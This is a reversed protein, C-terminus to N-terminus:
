SVRTMLINKFLINQTSVDDRVAWHTNDRYSLTSRKGKGCVQQFPSLNRSLILLNNKLLMATNMADAWLSNQLNSIFKGSNLIACVRIFLTVFIQQVCGNQQPMGPATYEFDVDLREQKCSEEFAVNESANNCLQYQVQMNYKNKLNKILGLMESALNSKEKLFLEM